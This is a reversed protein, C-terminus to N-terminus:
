LQIYVLSLVQHSMQQKAQTLCETIYQVQGTVCSDAQLQQDHRM